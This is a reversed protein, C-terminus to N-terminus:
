KPRAYRSMRTNGLRRVVGIRVLAAMARKTYKTKKVGIKECLETLTIEGRRPIAALMRNKLNDHHKRGTRYFERKAVFEVERKKEQQADAVRSLQEAVASFASRKM